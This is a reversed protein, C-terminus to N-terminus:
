ASPKPEDFEFLVRVGRKSELQAERSPGIADLLRAIDWARVQATMMMGSLWAQGCSPCQSLQETKIGDPSLCLRTVCKTCELTVSRIDGLGVVIRREVTM